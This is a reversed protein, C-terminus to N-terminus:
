ELFLLFAMLSVGLIISIFQFLSRSFDVEKHLEPILDSGAIYIFGGATLPLAYDCFAKMRTGVALALITGAIALTASCFNLILAKWRNLGGHVLIGFNGIEHPIEHLIVALTTTVGLPVTVLYSAGIIVGDFFNHVSEGIINLFVVPQTHVICETSHCHRWYIFKELIFFLFIGGIVGFSTFIDASPKRYIEPFIHIFVDGFLGGV